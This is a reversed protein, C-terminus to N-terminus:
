LPQAWCVEHLFSGEGYWIHAAQVHHGRHSGSPAATLCEPEMPYHEKFIQKLNRPRQIQPRPYLVEEPVEASVVKDPLPPSSLLYKDGDAQVNRSGARGGLGKGMWPEYFQHLIKNPEGEM